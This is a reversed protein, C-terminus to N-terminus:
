DEQRLPWRMTHGGYEEIQISGQSGDSAKKAHSSTLFSVCEAIVSGRNSVDDKSSRWALGEARNIWRETDPWVDEDIRHLDSRLMARQMGLEWLRLYDACGRGFREVPM